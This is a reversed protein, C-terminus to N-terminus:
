DSSRPGKKAGPRLTAARLAPDGYLVYNAWTFPHAGLLSERAATVASALTSGTVLAAYFSSAFAASGGDHLAWLTGLYARVGHKLVARAADALGRATRTASPGAGCSNAFVLLPPVAAGRFIEDLLAIQGDAMIWGPEGRDGFDGHGAFHVVDFGQEILTRLEGPSRPTKRIARLRDPFRASLELLDHAEREAAPLGRGAAGAELDALVLLRVAGSRERAASPTSVEDRIQRSIHFIQWLFRGREHAVLLEWPIRALEPQIRLLLHDGPLDLLRDRVDAAGGLFTEGIGLGLARIERRAEDIEESTARAGHGRPDGAARFSAMRSALADFGTLIREEDAPRREFVFDRELGGRGDSFVVTVRGPPEARLHVDSTITVGSPARVPRRRRRTVAVAVGVVVLAVLSAPHLFAEFASAVGRYVRARDAYPLLRLVIWLAILLAVAWM